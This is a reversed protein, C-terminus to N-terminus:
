AQTATATHGKSFCGHMVQTMIAAPLGHRIVMAASTADHYMTRGQVLRCTFSKLQTAQLAGALGKHSLMVGPHVGEVLM